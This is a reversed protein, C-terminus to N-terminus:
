VVLPTMKPEGASSAPVEEKLALQGVTNVLLPALKPASEVNLGAGLISEIVLTPDINLRTAAAQVADVIDANLRYGCAIKKRKNEM